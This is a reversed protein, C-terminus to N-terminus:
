LGELFKDIKEEAHKAAISIHPYAKARTTGDRNIHGNELLHTLPYHTNHVVVHIRGNAKEILVRWGKKYKEPDKYMYVKTGSKLERVTGTYISSLQKVEKRAEKAVKQLEQELNELIEGSYQTYAELMAATLDEIAIRDAM